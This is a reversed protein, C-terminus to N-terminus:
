QGEERRLRRAEANHDEVIRMVESERIERLITEDPEFGDDSTRPLRLFHRKEPWTIEFAVPFCIVGRELDIAMSSPNYGLKGALVHPEPARPLDDIRKAIAKGMVTGKSPVAEINDGHKGIKRWGIPTAAFFVSRLGGQRHQRLGKGGVEEVFKWHAKRAEEIKAFHALSIELGKGIVEYHTKYIESM